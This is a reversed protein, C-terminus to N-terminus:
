VFADFALGGKVSRLDVNLDFVRDSPDPLESGDLKVPIQRLPKLKFVGALVVLLM